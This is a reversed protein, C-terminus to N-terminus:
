PAHSYRLQYKALIYVEATSKVMLGVITSNDAGALEVDFLKCILFGFAIERGGESYARWGQFEAHCEMRNDSADRQLLYAVQM